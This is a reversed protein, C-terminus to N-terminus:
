ESIRTNPWIQFCPVNKFRKEKLTSTVFIKRKKIRGVWSAFQQINPVTASLLILGVHSPLMILVEEWVVGREPDNIYHVEDFIVWELDRIVDSGAYLMSRLIETTMILCGAEPQLYQTRIESFVFKKEVKIQCDGTLLGVDGFTTRFDRFKQNSLAKIPSTYIVKTM